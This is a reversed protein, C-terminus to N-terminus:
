KLQEEQKKAISKQAEAKNSESARQLEALEKEIQERRRADAGTAEQRLKERETQFATDKAQFPEVTKKLEEQLAKFKDYKKVVYSLNVVAIRAQPRPGAAPKTDSWSRGALILAALILLGAVFRLSDRM